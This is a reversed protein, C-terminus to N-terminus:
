NLPLKSAPPTTPQRHTTHSASIDEIGLVLEDLHHDILEYGEELVSIIQLPLEPLKVRHMVQNLRRRLKAYDLYDYLFQEQQFIRIFWALREPPRPALLTALSHIQDSDLCNIQAYYADLLGPYRLTLARDMLLETVIHGLFGPRFGDNLEPLDRFLRGLQSSLIIFRSQDHFIQDDDLHQLIGKGLQLLEAHTTPHNITELLSSLNKTRMRVPRDSVSLWDPLATGALFFPDDLFRCGHALYNM